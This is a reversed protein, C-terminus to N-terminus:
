ASLPPLRIPPSLNTLLGSPGSLTISFSAIEGLNKSDEILTLGDLGPTKSIVMRYFGELDGVPGTFIGMGGNMDYTASTNSILSPGVTPDYIAIVEFPTGIGVGPLVAGGNSSQISSITGKAILAIRGQAPLEQACCCGMFTLFVFSALRKM